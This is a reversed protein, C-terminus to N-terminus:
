ALAAVRSRQDAGPRRGLGYQRTVHALLRRGYHRPYSGHRRLRSFARRPDKAAYGWFYLTLGLSQNVQLSVEIASSGKGFHGRRSVRRRPTEMCGTKTLAPLFVCAVGM